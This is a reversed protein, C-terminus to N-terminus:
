LKEKLRQFYAKLTYSDPYGGIGASLKHYESKIAAVLMEKTVKERGRLQIAMQNLMSDEPFQKLARAFEPSDEKLKGQAALEALLSGAFRFDGYREWGYRDYEMLRDMVTSELSLGCLINLAEADGEKSKARALLEKEFRQFLQDNTEIKQSVVIGILKGAIFSNQPLKGDADLILGTKKLEAKVAEAKPEEQSAINVCCQIEKLRPSAKGLAKEVLPLDHDLAEKSVRSNWWDQDMNLDQNVLKEAAQVDGRQLSQILDSRRRLPSLDGHIECIAFDIATHRSPHRAAEWAAVAEKLKGQRLLCEALLANFQVADSGALGKQYLPIAEGYEGKRHREMAWELNVARENPKAKFLKEHLDYSVKPDMKFLMNAIVFALAPSKDTETMAILQKNATEVDGNSAQSSAKEFEAAHQAAAANVENEFAPEDGAAANLTGAIILLVSFASIRRVAKM